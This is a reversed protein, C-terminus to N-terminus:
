GAVRRPLPERNPRSPTPTTEGPNTGSNIIHTGPDTVVTVVGGGDGTGAFIGAANRGQVTLTGQHYLVTADGNGQVSAGLGQFFQEGPNLFGFMNGSADVFADGKQASSVAQMITGNSFGSSTLDLGGGVVGGSPGTYIIKSTAGNFSNNIQIADLRTTNAQVKITGGAMVTADGSGVFLDLGPGLAGTVNITASKDMFVLTKTPAVFNLIGVNQGTVNVGSQLTVSLDSVAGGPQSLSIGNPYNGSPCTVTSTGLGSCQALALKSVGLLLTAMLSAAMSRKSTLGLSKWAVDFRPTTPMSDARNGTLCGRAACQAQDRRSVPRDRRSIRSM